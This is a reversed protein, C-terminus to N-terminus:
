VMPNSYGLRCRVPETLRRPMVRARRQVAIHLSDSGQDSRETLGPCALGIRLGEDDKAPKEFTSGDPSRRHTSTSSAIGGSAPQAADYWQMKNSVLEPTAANRSISLTSSSRCCTM